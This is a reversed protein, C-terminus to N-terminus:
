DKHKKKVNFIAAALDDNGQKKLAMSLAQKGAATAATKLIDQASQKAVNLLIEKVIKKGENQKQTAAPTATLQSYQKEMNLRDIAARLEADSLEKIAPKAPAAAATSKPASSAKPTPKDATSAKGTGTKEPTKPATKVSSRDRRVGWRMGKVGFHEFFDDLEADM